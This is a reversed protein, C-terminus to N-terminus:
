NYQFMVKFIVNNYYKPNYTVDEGVWSPLELKENIDDLEVEILCLRKNVYYADYYNIEFEHGQYPVYYRTKTLWNEIDNIDKRNIEYEYEDRIGQNNSKVTIFAKNDDTKRIRTFDNFYHDAIRKIKSCSLGRMLTYFDFNDNLLFKKEIEKGM